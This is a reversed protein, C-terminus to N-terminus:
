IMNSICMEELTNSVACPPLPPFNKKNGDKDEWFWEGWTKNPILSCTLNISTPLDHKMFVYEKEAYFILFNRTILNEEFYTTSGYIKSAIKTVQKKNAPTM